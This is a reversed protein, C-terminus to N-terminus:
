TRVSDDYVHVGAQRLPAVSERGFGGESVVAHCIQWM